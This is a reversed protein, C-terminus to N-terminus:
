IFFYHFRAADTTCSPFGILDADVHSHIPPISAATSAQGMAM